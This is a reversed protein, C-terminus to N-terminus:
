QVFSTITVTFDKLYWYFQGKRFLGGYQDKKVLVLMLKLFSLEIGGNQLAPKSFELSWVLEELVLM